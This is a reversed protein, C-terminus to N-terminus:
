PATPTEQNFQIQHPQQHDNMNPSNPTAATAPFALLLLLLLALQTKTKNNM